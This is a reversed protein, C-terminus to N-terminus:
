RRAVTREMDPVALRHLAAEIEAGSVAPPMVSKSRLMRAEGDPRVEILAGTSMSGREAKLVLAWVGESPWQKKVAFVGPKSTPTLLLRVSQRKGNVLGEATGTLTAGASGACGETAVVVATDAIGAAIPARASYTTIWFGGGAVATTVCALAVAPVLVRTRM